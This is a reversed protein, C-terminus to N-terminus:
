HRGASGRIRHYGDKGSRKRRPGEIVLGLLTRAPCVEVLKGREKLPLDFSCIKLCVRTNSVPPRKPRRRSQGNGPLRRVNSQPHTRKSANITDSAPAHKHQACSEFMLNLCSVRNYATRIGISRQKGLALFCSSQTVARPQPFQSSLFSPFVRHISPNLPLYSRSDLVDAKEQM